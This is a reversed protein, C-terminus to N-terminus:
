YEDRKGIPVIIRFTTGEGDATKVDIRGHHSQVIRHAVFLGIGSGKKKTTFFPEFMKQQINRPIGHGTDRVYIEVTNDSVDLSVGLTIEGGNPMAEMANLGLNLLMQKFQKHDAMIHVPEEHCHCVVKMNAPFNKHHYLLAATEELLENVEMQELVVKRLRTFLLFDEVIADLREVEKSIIEVLHQMDRREETMDTLLEASGSISAMPNRIEHAITASMDVIARLREAERIKEENERQTRLDRFLVITYMKKGRPYRFPSSVAAIAIEEGTCTYANLEVEEGREIRRYVEVSDIANVGLVTHWHVGTLDDTTCYLLQTGAKNAYEVRGQDDTIFIGTKVHDFVYETQHRLRILEESKERLLTHVFFSLFGTGAFLTSYIYAIYYVHHPEYAYSLGSLSYWVSLLYLAISVGTTVLLGPRTYFLGSVLIILIYLNPWPDGVPDTVVMISTVAILDILLQFMGLFAFRHSTQLFVIYLVSIIYYFAIYYYFPGPPITLVIVGIILSITIVALRLTMLWQLRRYLQTNDESLIPTRM